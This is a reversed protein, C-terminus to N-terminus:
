GEWDLGRPAGRFGAARLADTLADRGVPADNILDLTFRGRRGRGLAAVLAQCAARTLDASAQTADFWTLLQRGGQALYMLPRGAGIVVLAGARRVPRLTATHAPWPLVSGFPNAPDLASLGVVVLSPAAQLTDAIARLRDVTAREAFQAGGLGTVFRGRLVRGADEMGRYVQQLAPFGGAIGEAVAAGRTVIAHRDLLGDALAVARVTDSTTERPLLSWRGALSPAAFSAAATPSTDTHERPGAMDIWRPDRQRRSPRVVRPRPTRTGALGRLPSWIDTTVHGAWVLDWLAAHLTDPTIAPVTDPDTATNAVRGQVAMALARAFYAGGEGLVAVIAQQLPSLDTVTPVPLTEFAVEQLHLSVLGDDDGIRAHGAWLVSGTALLEDLMGPAYDGVRAPLIQSEWVSAPASVGALLEVVRAVGDIGHLAATSAHAVRVPPAADPVLGQRELLLLAYADQAVPRTAARAAQLSRTRLRRLVDDAVWEHHALALPAPVGAAAEQGQRVVGFSGRLVKGQAQLQELAADAVVVGVGFATAVQATTFPAHTRAYRALLEGLPDTSPPLVAHPPLAPLAIGLADRLRTADEVAAWHESGALPIRLARHDRELAHLHEIAAEDVLRRAVETLSLPGLERLLDAVGERGKARRAPALRQLEAGVQDVVAADLLEGMDVQGLLDALLGDDLSLVSARREALPVDTGYMFEAVYGFLLNAAFPSPVETTVEAIAVSGEALRQMLAGLAQLDYVDQLCERAAEILIPFDPYRQAIALLEAARLRQQWLPSRRGPSRRPLLLARAACERFRAAFLASTGVARAVERRVQEPDFLFLDAGPLRGATDPIRAIIGDDSAVVAPDVGWRERIRAAMALAWPDHVRRGYPSHLMLRWDGNEDRCREVVLRRDTPLVGTAQRQEDLLGYINDIANSALGCAQLRETMAAPREGEDAARELAAIFAGVAEGLEAPRGVGEGRWFPLRASRGPAPTVVVQDHTIQEIRWSTAGLTIVDNVRSEHVMEEDLEGVRRSGAREEGEPLVVGFMGRDPITGGSTVALQKAGPRAELTGTQRNWVLRPRFGAFDDSPYRGTLMDLTADFASRPLTRYPAARRVRAYWADVDLTDMAAAAVTQQALVDLPNQPPDVAEIGGALMREIAVTADILDRRTRPYVLGTSTGGVQHSARGVRQLASAVSPPAAVQIVLDVRGMDIGLELSSTAVVCRLQGSKLAQEIERRQEKSVSGHHSRAILTAAGSVRGSTGGNFSAYHGDAPVAHPAAAPPAHLGPDRALRDAYLENLRATLKEAVGRSNAFVITARRSLVQDLISAEVHPWISGVRGALATGGEGLPSPIDAMDEVPVVIRVDLQRDSPPNVVTVPRDGGLFGAVEEVPRVTASLGIRQVPQQALADLRELSLALHTGRKSGGVAHIEDIIVTHVDRLSDRAKSTLMLFLSEPTTILIDPPRRLLRAREASTTDGSRIAVSLALAPDGRLARQANVGELPVQLNRHVDAGLAKIPSIYLVGTGDGPVRPQRARVRFLRDIAHLFAALTKGSGTPAIVLTHDGAGIAAWAAVQVPTAADFASTFWARTAPEFAALSPTTHPTSTPM